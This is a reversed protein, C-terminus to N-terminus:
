CFQNYIKNVRKHINFDSCLYIIKKNTNQSLNAISYLFKYRDINENDLRKYFGIQNDDKCCLNGM